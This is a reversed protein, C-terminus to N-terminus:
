KARKHENPFEAINREINLFTLLSGWGDGECINMVLLDNPRDKFYSVVDAHHRDYAASYTDRDFKYQGYVRIRNDRQVPSAIGHQPIYEAMSDLWSDKERVTYIFKANPFREDLEKYNIVVPLDFAACWHGEMLAVLGPYHITSFGLQSIAKALSTTGTRSLGVGFIKM